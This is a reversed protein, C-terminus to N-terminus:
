PHDLMTVIGTCFQFTIWFLSLMAQKSNYIQALM